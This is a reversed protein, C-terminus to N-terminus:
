PVELAERFVLLSHQDPPCELVQSGTPAPIHTGETRAVIRPVHRRQAGQPPITDSEVGRVISAIQIRITAHAHQSPQKLRLENFADPLERNGTVPIKRPMEPSQLKRRTRKRLHLM